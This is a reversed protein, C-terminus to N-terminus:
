SASTMVSLSKCHPLDTRVETSAGMMQTRCQTLFSLSSLECVTPFCPSISFHHRSQMHSPVSTVYICTFKWKSMLCKSIVLQTSLVMSAYTSIFATYPLIHCIGISSWVCVCVCQSVSSYPLQELITEDPFLKEMFPAKQILWLKILSTSGSDTNHFIPHIIVILCSM